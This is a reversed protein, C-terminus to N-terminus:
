YIYLFADERKTRVKEREMVEIMGEIKGQTVRKLLSNRRLIHYTNNANKLKM